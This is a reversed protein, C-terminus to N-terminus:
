VAEDTDAWWVFNSALRKMTLMEDPSLKPVPDAVRDATAGYAMLDSFASAHVFFFKEKRYKTSTPLGDCLEVLGNHLSFPVWYENSIPLYFYNFFVRYDGVFGEPADTIVDNAEPFRPHFKPDIHYKRVLMGMTRVTLKSKVSGIHSIGTSAM